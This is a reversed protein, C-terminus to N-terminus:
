RVGQFRWSDEFIDFAGHTRYGVMYHTAKVLQTAAAGARRLSNRYVGIRLMRLAHPTLTVMSSVGMCTTYHHCGDLEVGCSPCNKYLARVALAESLLQIIATRCDPTEVTSQRLARKREAASPIPLPWYRPDGACNWGLPLIFVDKPDFAREAGNRYVIVINGTVSEYSYQAIEKHNGPSCDEDQVVVLQGKLLPYDVENAQM